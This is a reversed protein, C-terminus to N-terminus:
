RREAPGGQRLAALRLELAMTAEFDRLGLWAAAEELRREVSADPNVGLHDAVATLAALPALGILESERLAAGAERALGEVEEWVRWLPTVTHDLLNMSVQACELDDLFLGLAQVRPLGGNRERITSAIRKALALDDSDLNINYAILFPRAGVVTAGGTPHRRAPGFDPEFEPTGIVDALGEFQPRRIDSLVRRDPRTAAEAYLYVPLDFREAVRAGFARALDVCGSMTSGELPVFPVVDVAGLRPHQGIHDRLDIRELAVAMAAEMADAVPEGEGAFTLVSRNHDRDSSRDLLVVGPTVSVADAIADVVDMRRGESFNPVCEVLGPM